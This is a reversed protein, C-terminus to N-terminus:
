QRMIHRFVRPTVVLVWVAIAWGTGCNLAVIIQNVAYKATLINDMLVLVLVGASAMVFFTAKAHRRVASVYIPYIKLCLLSCYTGLCIASIYIIHPKHIWLGLVAAFVFSFLWFRASTLVRTRNAFRWNRLQRLAFSAGLGIFCGVVVDSPYHEGQLLVKASVLLVSITGVLALRRRGRPYKEKDWSLVLWSFLYTTLAVISAPLTYGLTDHEGFVPDIFYPRPVEIITTMVLTFLSVLLLGAGYILTARHGHYARIFALSLIFFLPTILSGTAIIANKASAFSRSAARYGHLSQLVSLQNRYFPTLDESEGPSLVFDSPTVLPVWKPFMWKHEPFRYNRRVTPTDPLLLVRTVEKGFHPASWAMLVRRENEDVFYPTSTKLTCAFIASNYTRAILDGTEVHLGTEEFVERKAAVQPTEDGIISGGPISYKGSIAEDIMLINGQRDVILCDAAKIPLTSNIANVSADAFVDFALFVIFGMLLRSIKM